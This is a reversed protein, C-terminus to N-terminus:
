KAAGKMYAMMNSELYGSMWEPLAPNDAANRSALWIIKASEEAATNRRIIKGEVGVIVKVKPYDIIAENMIKYGQGILRNM